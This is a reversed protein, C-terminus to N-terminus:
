KLEAYSFLVSFPRCWVLVKNYKDLDTGDPIPYNVNGKTAKLKGLDIFDSDGLDSSLYIYLAPGNITDFNEFRLTKEGNSDIILAKGAVEHARPEFTGSSLIQAKPMEDQMEMVKDKMKETELEFEKMQDESMTNLSDQIELPSTEDLEVSFFLPSLLYWLVPLIILLALFAWFKKM